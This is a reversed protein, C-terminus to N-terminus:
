DEGTALYQNLSASGAWVRRRVEELPRPGSAMGYMDFACGSAIVIGAPLWAVGLSTAMMYRGDASRLQPVAEQVAEATAALDVPSMFDIAVGRECSRTIRVQASFWGIRGDEMYRGVAYHTESAVVHSDHIRMDLREIVIRGPPDLRLQLAIERERKRVTIRSGTVSLDWHDVSGIWANKELSLVPVGADDTFVADIAGPEGGEGPNVRILESGNYRLVCRVLPSYEIGGLVVEATGDFLDIPGVPNGVEAEGSQIQDYAARVSAKSRQGRTVESHCSPCLCCINQAEHREAEAFEPEIHEYEYFASRCIVCGFKSRRRVELAIAAPIHRPLGFRNTPM